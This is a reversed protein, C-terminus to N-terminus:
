GPPASTSSRVVLEPALLSATAGKEGALVREILNMTRRGLEMFDQRVTTLPPHFFEAEPIDDFGVVSIDGPVGKGEDRLAALLGLAMQDNAVFVATTGQQAAITRGHAYGSRASWDGELVEPVARGAACLTAEWGQRRAVAEIWDSPGTLHHVTTHGLALLHETALRAGEAQDVGATLPMASLDGEVVIVPVGLDLSQTLPLVARHAVVVVLAEVAQDLLREAASHLADASIKTLGALTLSYATDRAAAELALLTSSPGYQGMEATVVGILGSRRTVLTRAATNRRYGLEAIAAIVRDRTGPRVNEANNLVRSVTMHSVGALRGVDEMRTSRSVAGEATSRAAPGRPLPAATPPSM